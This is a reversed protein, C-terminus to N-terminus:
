PPPQKLFYYDKAVDVFNQELNCLDWNHLRCRHRRMLSQDM